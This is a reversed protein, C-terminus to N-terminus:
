KLGIFGPPGPLDEQPSMQFWCLAPQNQVECGAFHDEMRPRDLISISPQGGGQYMQSNRLRTWFWRDLHDLHDLHTESVVDVPPRHSPDPSRFEPDFKQILILLSAWCFRPDGAWSSESPGM